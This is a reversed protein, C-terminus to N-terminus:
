AARLPAVTATAAAQKPRGRREPVGNLLDRLRKIASLYYEGAHHESGRGYARRSAEAESFGASVLVVLMRQNPTLKMLGAILDARRESVEGADGEQWLLDLEDAMEWTHLREAQPTAVQPTGATMQRM